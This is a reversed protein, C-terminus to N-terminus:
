KHIPVFPRFLLLFPGDSPTGESPVDCDLRVYGEQKTTGWAFVIAGRGSYVHKRSVRRGMRALSGNGKLITVPSPPPWRFCWYMWFRLRIFETICNSHDGFRITSGSRVKLPRIKTKRVQNHLSGWGISQLYQIYTFNQKFVNDVDSRTTIMESLTLPMVFLTVRIRIQIYTDNVSGKWNQYHKKRIFIAIILCCSHM